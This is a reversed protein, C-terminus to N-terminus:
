DAFPDIRIPTTHTDAATLFLTTGGAPVGGLTQVMDRGWCWLEADATLGCFALESGARLRQIAPLGDVRAPVRVVDADTGDGLVGALARGWCWVAGADTLACASHRGVVVQTTTVDGLAVQVPTAMPGDPEGPMLGHDNNGWCHVAGGSVVCSHDHSCTVDTVDPLGLTQLRSQDARSGNGLQGGNGDGVCHVRGMARVCLHRDGIAVQEVQELIGPMDPRLMAEAPAYRDDTDDLGLQGRDNRGWCRTGGTLSLHCTNAFGLSVGRPSPLGTLEFPTLVPTASVAGTGVQGHENAGWCFVGPASTTACVHITLGRVETVAGPGLDIRVPRARAGVDGTALQGLLNSGWCWLEGRDDIACAHAAGIAVDVITRPIDGGDLSGDEPAGDAPAGDTAADSVGGDVDTRPVCGRVEDFVAAETCYDDFVCGGVGGVSGLLLVAALAGRSTAKSRGRAGRGVEDGSRLVAM